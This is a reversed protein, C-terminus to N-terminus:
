VFCLNQLGESDSDEGFDFTTDFMGVKEFCERRILLSPTVLSNKIYLEKFSLFENAQRHSVNFCQDACEDFLSYGSAVAGVDALREMIDVQLKLKQPLWLDDADLFAILEGKANEIGKNRASSPGQNKQYIYKIKDNLGSVLSGTNDTSGDDVVIIEVSQYQQKFVSDIAQFIYQECNYAPIIVSVLPLHM